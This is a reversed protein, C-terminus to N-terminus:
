FNEERFGCLKISLLNIPLTTVNGSRAREREKERRGVQQTDEEMEGGAQCGWCAPLRTHECVRIGRFSRKDLLHGGM